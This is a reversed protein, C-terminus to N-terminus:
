IALVLSKTPHSPPRGMKGDPMTSSQIFCGDRGDLAVGIKRCTKNIEWKHWFPHILLQSAYKLFLSIFDDSFMRRDFMAVPESFRQKKVFGTVFLSKVAYFAVTAKLHSGRCILACLLTKEAPSILTECFCFNIFFLCVAGVEYKFLTYLSMAAKDGAEFPIFSTVLFFPHFCPFGLM